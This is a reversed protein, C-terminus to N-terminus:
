FDDEKSSTPQFKHEKDPPPAAPIFRMKEKVFELYAMIGTEGSFRNKLCRVTVLNKQTTSQQDRELAIVINSLAAIQTSGRLLSLSLRGGEELSTKGGEPRRAHCVAILAINLRGVAQRLKTMVADIRRREDGQDAKESLMLTIHDLFIYKYGAAALYTIKSLLHEAHVSGFHDYFVLREDEFVEDFASKFDKDSLTNKLHLPKMTHIGMFALASERLSEELAIYAVKHQRSLHYAIERMLTSKGVGTGATLMVLEGLRIGHTVENFAEWPYEVADASAEEATLADWILDTSAIDDPRHSRANWFAAMVADTKGEMLMENVDAGSLDAIFAKGPTLLDACEKAAKRGPEDNDFMFVVEEFAELFELNDRVAKAAGSAGTPIGVVPWKNHMIQAMSLTDIEGECVTVRKGGKFLQQGYLGIGKWTGRTTFNKNADRLKQGAIEGGKFYTAVQVGQYVGYKYRKCVEDYIGRAPLDVVDIENLPILNSNKPVQTYAEVAQGNSTLANCSFCYTHGDTYLSNADSSGCSECPLHKVFSSGEHDQNDHM